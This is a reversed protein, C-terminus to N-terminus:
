DVAAYKLHLRAVVYAGACSPLLALAAFRFFPAAGEGLFSVLCAPVASLWVGWRWTREPWLLGFVAGAAGYCYVYAVPLYADAVGAGEDVVYLFRAFVASLGVCALGVVVAVPYSYRPVDEGRAHM